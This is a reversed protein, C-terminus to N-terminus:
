GAPRAKEAPRAGRWAVKGGGRGAAASAGAARGKEAPGAARAARRGGCREGRDTRVSEGAWLSVARERPPRKDCHAPPRPGALSSAPVGREHASPATAEGARAARQGQRAGARHREAVAGGAGHYLSRARAGRAGGGVADRSAAAAAAAVGQTQVAHGCPTVAPQPRRHRGSRCGARARRRRGM